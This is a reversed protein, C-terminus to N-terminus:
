VYEAGDLKAQLFADTPFDWRNVPQRRPKDDAAAQLLLDIATLRAQKRDPAFIIM